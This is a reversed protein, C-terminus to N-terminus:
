LDQRIRHVRIALLLAFWIGRQELDLDFLQGLRELRQILTNRHVFLLNSTRTLHGGNELYVELTDLLAARKRQDYAAIREVLDQYRDGLDEMRAIRYLYRFLGLDNFSTVASGPHLKRGLLLAEAAQAFSRRYDGLRQCPHGLGIAITVAEGTQTQRLLDGLRDQLSAGTPDRILRLLCVLLGDREMFLSGPYTERMRRLLRNRIRGPKGPEASVAEIALGAGPDEMPTVEALAVAHVKTLDGGLSRARLHLPDACEEGVSGYRLADFLEEIPTKRALSEVLHGNHMALAVQNAVVTLLEQCERPSPHPNKFYCHLLGIVESGIVLPVSLLSGFQSLDLPHLPRTALTDMAPWGGGLASSCLAELLDRNVVLPQRVSHPLPLSAARVALCREARDVSLILCLDAEVMQAVLCALANLKEPLPLASTAKRGIAALCDYGRLLIEISPLYAM